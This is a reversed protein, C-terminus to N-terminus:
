KVTVEAEDERGQNNKKSIHHSKFQYVNTGKEKNNISVVFGVFM